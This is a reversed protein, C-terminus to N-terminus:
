WWGDFNHQFSPLSIISLKLHYAFIQYQPVTDSSEISCSHWPLNHENQYLLWATLLAYLEYRGLDNAVAYRSYSQLHTIIQSSAM